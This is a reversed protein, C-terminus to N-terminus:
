GRLAAIVTEVQEPFITRADLLVRSGAVRAIVPPDNARLREALSEDPFGALWTRLKAGPFSGGGVESDGEILQGGLREARARISEPNETLMRLVPIERIAIEPDRYLALTAELGALTLKDARVTRAIPDARCAAIAAASGVLIGAQPGGLLKDGSFAVLDAGTAVAEQVTPEGSLGGGWRSLNMLLGSGLDYVCAIGRGHAMEALEVVAVDATFGTVQFNSRHVKLLIRSDPTLAREYDHPHTRNTTGVEVVRAGSRAMIDPIRFSGGIEVLEGRSVIADGGRALASLALLVAGAANNVVLADAAGTLEVLLDRCIAHRSGRTGRGLDYELASYGQAVRTIAAIAAPALPARGLNTHLVVGTANIVPALSPVALRRVAARVAEDWGEAPATGGNVRAEDVAARAAKVVLARPHTALLPAVGPGALLSDVSPLQRRPDTM